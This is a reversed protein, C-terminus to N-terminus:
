TQVHSSTGASGRPVVLNVALPHPGRSGGQSPKGRALCQAKLM